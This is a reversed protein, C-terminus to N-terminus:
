IVPGVHRRQADGPKKLAEARDLDQLADIELRARALEDREDARGAAALRRQERHDRSQLGDAFAIRM